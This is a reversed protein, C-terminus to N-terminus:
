DCIGCNTDTGCNGVQSAEMINGRSDAEIKCCHLLMDKLRSRGRQVRSRVSPYALDYKGALDKQKIGKIESDIIIDRYEVPLRDILGELCKDLGKTADVDTTEKIDDIMEDRMDARKIRANKRYYDTIANRTVTFIWSKLKQEETVGHMHTSIRIFVEQLIDEADDSNSIRKNIFNFLMKHFQEHINKIEMKMM